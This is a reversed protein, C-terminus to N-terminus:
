EGSLPFPEAARADRRPKFAGHIPRSDPILEEESVVDAEMTEGDRLYVRAAPLAYDRLCIDIGEMERLEVGTAVDYVRVQALSPLRPEVVVRLKM